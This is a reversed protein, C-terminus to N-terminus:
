GVVKWSLTKIRVTLGALRCLFYDFLTEDKTSCVDYIDKGIVAYM